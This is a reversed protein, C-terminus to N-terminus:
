VGPSQRWRQLDQATVQGMKRHLIQGNGGLVVTFPLGGTLNGLARALDTGGLGAMGVPFQVPARALFSRVASPQDVALGVVQWGQAAQEQFFANLLPLEAVCPPCWTAWFNVLLPRGQFSQMALEAGDPTQFREQWLAQEVGPAASHPQFKWWAWGVGSAGAAAAVVAYLARRRTPPTDPGPGSSPSSPLNM